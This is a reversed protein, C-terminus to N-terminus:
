MGNKETLAIMLICAYTLGVWTYGWSMMGLTTSQGSFLILIAVGSVLVLLIHYLKKTKGELYQKVGKQRLHYACMVGILLTDIRSFTLIYNPYAPDPHLFYLCLRFIPASIIILFLISPLRHFPTIRIILPLLLYFQEEIALSWTVSFWSSSDSGEIAM